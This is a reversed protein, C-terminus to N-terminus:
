LRVMFAAKKYIASIEKESFSSFPSLPRPIEELSSLRKKLYILDHWKGFKYGVAHFFAEEEFGMSRHFGVSEENPYSIVAYAQIYGQKKLIPLLASYLATAIKKRHFDPSLYISLETDWQYAAREHFSSAYAYGAIMGDIECVLYPFQSLTREIRKRFEEESPPTFEYSVPTNLIYPTYIALLAAADEPAATRIVASSM